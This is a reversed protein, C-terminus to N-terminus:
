KRVEIGGIITRFMMKQQQVSTQEFVKRWNPIHQKLIELEKREIRKAEVFV